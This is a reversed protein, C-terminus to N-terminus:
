SLTRFEILMSNSSSPKKKKKKVGAELPHVLDRLEFCVHYKSPWSLVQEPTIKGKKKKEQGIGM